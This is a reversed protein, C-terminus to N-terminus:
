RARGLEQEVREVLFMKMLSQYPVDRLNAMQKLRALLWEPLRLSIGFEDNIEFQPFSSKRKEGILIIPCILKQGFDREEDENKFRPIKRFKKQM